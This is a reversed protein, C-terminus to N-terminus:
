RGTCGWYLEDILASVTDSALIQDIIAEEVLQNDIDVEQAVEQAVQELVRLANDPAGPTPDVPINYFHTIPKVEPPVEAWFDEGDDEWSYILKFYHHDM